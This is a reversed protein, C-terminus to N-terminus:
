IIPPPKESDNDISRPVVKSTEENQPLKVYNHYQKNQVPPHLKYLELRATPYELEIEDLYGNHKVIKTKEPYAQNSVYISISTSM